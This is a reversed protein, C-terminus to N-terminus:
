KRKPYTLLISAKRDTPMARHSHQPPLADPRSLEKALHRAWEGMIQAAEAPDATGLVTVEMRDSHPIGPAQFAIETRRDNLSRSM